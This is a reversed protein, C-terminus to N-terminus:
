RDTPRNSFPSASVIPFTSNVEKEVKKVFSRYFAPDSKFKDITEQSFDEAENMEIDKLLEGAQGMIKWSQIRPPLM